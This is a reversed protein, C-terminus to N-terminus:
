TAPAIRAAAQGLPRRQFSSTFACNGYKCGVESQHARNAVLHAAPFTVRLPSRASKRDALTGTPERLRRQGLAARYEMKSNKAPRAGLVSKKPTTRQPSQRSRM